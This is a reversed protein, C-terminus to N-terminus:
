RIFDRIYPKCNSSIKIEYTSSKAVFKPFLSLVVHHVCVSEKTNVANSQLTEMELSDEPPHSFTLNFDCGTGSDFLAGLQDSIEISHDLPYNM